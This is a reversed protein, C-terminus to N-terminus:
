QTVSEDPVKLEAYFCVIFSLPNQSLQEAVIFVGLMFCVSNEPKETEWEKFPIMVPSLSFSHSIVGSLFNDLNGLHAIVIPNSIM